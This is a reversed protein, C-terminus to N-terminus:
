PEDDDSGPERPVSAALHTLVPDPTPRDVIAPQAGGFCERLLRAAKTDGAAAPSVWEARIAKVTEASRAMREALAAAKEEHTM